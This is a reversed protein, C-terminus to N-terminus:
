KISEKKTLKKSDILWGTKIAFTSLIILATNSNIDLANLCSYIVSMFAGFLYHFKNSALSITFYKWERTGLARIATAIIEGGCASVFATVICFWWPKNTAIAREYSFTTFVAISLLDVICLVRLLKQSFHNKKMLVITTIDIVAITTIEIPHNFIYPTTHLLLLDRFFIDGFLATSIGSLFQIIPHLGHQKAILIGGIVSTINVIYGLVDLITVNFICLM